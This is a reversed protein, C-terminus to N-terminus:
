LVWLSVQESESGRLELVSTAAQFAGTACLSSSFHGADLRASVM